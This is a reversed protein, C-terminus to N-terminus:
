DLRRIQKIQVRRWEGQTRGKILYYHGEGEEVISKGMKEYDYRGVTCIISDTDDEMTLNLFLNKTEIVKGGRKQLSEYENLDRLNVIKSKAIFIWEGEGQIQSVRVIPASYVKYKEPNDYMDKFRTETEFINDWPTVANDLIKNQGALLPRGLSRRTIIDEAKSPGVGKISTLGGL